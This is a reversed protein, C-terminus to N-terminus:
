PTPGRNTWMVYVDFDGTPMADFWAGQDLTKISANVGIDQLNEAVTQLHEGLRGARRCRSASPSRRAMPITAGATATRTSSARRCRPNGQGRRPRVGDAVPLARAGGCRYWTNYFMAPASRSVETATTLGFTSIDLLTQRDIAISMAKRFELNNFPAKTTNLQLNRGADAPLWYHNDPSQPLFTMDPDTLGDDLGTSIALQHHRRHDARQGNM